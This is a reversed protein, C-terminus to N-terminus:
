KIYKYTAVIWKKAADFKEGADINSISQQVGLGEVPKSFGTGVAAM